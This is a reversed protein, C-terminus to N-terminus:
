KDIARMYDKYSIIRNRGRLEKPLLGASDEMREQLLWDKDSVSAVEIQHVKGDETVCTVDPRKNSGQIPHGSAKKIGRNLFVKEVNPDKALEVTVRYCQEAHANTRMSQGARRETWQAEGVVKTKWAQEEHHIRWPQEKTLTFKTAKVKEWAVLAENATEKLMRPKNTAKSITERLGNFAENTKAWQRKVDKSMDTTGQGVSQEAVSNNSLLNPKSANSVGSNMTATAISLGKPLATTPQALRQMGNIEMAEMVHPLPMVNRNANKPIVNNRNVARGLLADLATDDLSRVFPAQTIHITKALALTHRIERVFPVVSLTAGLSGEWMLDPTNTVYGHVGVGTAAPFFIKAPAPILGGLATSLAISTADHANDINFDHNALSAAFGGAAGLAMSTTLTPAFAAGSSLAIAGVYTATKGPNEAVYTKVHDVAKHLPRAAIKQKVHDVKGAALRQNWWGKTQALNKEAQKKQDHLYLSTLSM